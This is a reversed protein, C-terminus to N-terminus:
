YHLLLTWPLGISPHAGAEDEVEQYSLADAQHHVGNVVLGLHRWGCGPPDDGDGDLRDDFPDVDRKDSQLVGLLAFFFLNEERVDGRYEVDLADVM